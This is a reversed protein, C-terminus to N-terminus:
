RNLVLTNTRFILHETMRQALYTWNVKILTMQFNTLILFEAGTRDLIDDVFRKDESPLIVLVKHSIISKKFSDIIGQIKM